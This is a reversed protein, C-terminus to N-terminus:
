SSSQLAPLFLPLPHESGARQTNHGCSFSGLACRLAACSQARYRQLGTRERVEQRTRTSGAQCAAACQLRVRASALLELLGQLVSSSGPACSLLVPASLGLRENCHATASAEEMQAKCRGGASEGRARHAQPSCPLCCPSYLRFRDRCRLHLHVSWAQHERCACRGRPLGVVAGAPLCESSAMGSHRDGPQSTSEM